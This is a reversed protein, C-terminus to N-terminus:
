EVYYNQNHQIVLYGCCDSFFFFHFSDLTPFFSTFSESNASSMIRYMAFKLSAVLFNSFIILSYLLTASYLLLLVSIIEM